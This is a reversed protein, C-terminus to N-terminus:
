VQDQGEGRFGLQQSEAQHFVRKFGGLVLLKLREWGGLPLTRKWFRLTTVELRSLCCRLMMQHWAVWPPLPHKTMAPVATVKTSPSDACLQQLATSPISPFPSQSALSTLFTSGSSQAGPWISIIIAQPHWPGRDAQPLFHPPQHSHSLHPFCSLHCPRVPQLFVSTGRPDVRGASGLQRPSITATVM